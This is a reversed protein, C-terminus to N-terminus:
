LLEGKTLAWNIGYDDLDFGDVYDWDRIEIRRKRFDYLATYGEYNIERIEGTTNNKEYIPQSVIKECLEEADELPGLKQNAEGLNAWDEQHKRSEYIGIDNKKTLRM